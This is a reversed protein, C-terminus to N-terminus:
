SIGYGGLRGPVGAGPCTFLPCLIRVNLLDVEISEFCTKGMGMVDMSVCVCLPHAVRLSLYPTQLCPAVRWDNSCESM